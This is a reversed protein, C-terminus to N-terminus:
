QAQDAGREAKGEGDRGRSCEMWKRQPQQREEPM